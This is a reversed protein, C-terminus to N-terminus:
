KCENSIIMSKLYNTSDVALNLWFAKNQPSYCDVFAKQESIIKLDKISLPQPVIHLPLSTLFQSCIQIGFIDNINPITFGKWTPELCNTKYKMIIHGNIDKYFKFMRAETHNSFNTTVSEFYQVWDFIQRIMTFYYSKSGSKFAQKMFDPFAHLSEICHHLLAIAWTAFEQDILDHTHGPILCLIKVKKFWNFYILHAAFAFVSKNKAEKVCNDAQIILTTPRKHKMTQFSRLIHDYLITISVNAGSEWHPFFFYFHTLKESFNSIGYISVRVRPLTQTDKPLPVIHPWRDAQKGDYMVYMIEFPKISAKQRLNTCYERMSSHLKNHEQIFENLQIKNLGLLKQRRIELCFDCQGMRFNKPIKINPYKTKWFTRFVTYSLDIGTKQLVEASALQFVYNRSFYTPLYLHNNTPFFDCYNTILTSFWINLISEYPKTRIQLSNGHITPSQLNSICQQFKYDSIGFLIKFACVCLCKTNIIFCFGSDNSLQASSIKAKLWDSIQIENMKLFIKRRNKVDTLSTLNLVFCVM